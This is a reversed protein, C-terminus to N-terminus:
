IEKNFQSLAYMAIGASVAANLSEIGGAMPLALVKDARSRFEPSLGKGESGVVLAFDGDTRASFLNEGGMDLVVVLRGCLAKIADDRTMKAVPIRFVGGMSARVAKPSYASASDVAIVGDFGAAVATRLLAGVNGPDQIGDLVLLRKGQPCSEAPIKFTALIGQPTDTDSIKDYVASSVVTPVIDFEKAYELAKDERVFLEVIKDANDRILKIGEAFFLGTEERGKATKLSAIRKIRQNQTSVIVEMIFVATM